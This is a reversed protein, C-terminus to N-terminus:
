ETMQMRVFIEKMAQFNEETKEMDLTIVPDKIKCIDEESQIQIHFYRSVVDNTDDTKIIDVDEEIVFRSDHVVLPCEVVSTVM